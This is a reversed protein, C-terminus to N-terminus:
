PRPTSRRTRSGFSQDERRLRSRTRRSLTGARPSRSSRPFSDTRARTARLVQRPRVARLGDPLPRQHDQRTRSRVEQDRQHDEGRGRQEEAVGIGRRTVPSRSSIFPCSRGRRGLGPQPGAVPDHAAAVDRDSARPAARTCSRAVDSLGDRERDLAASSSSNLKSIVGSGSVISPCLSRGSRSRARRALGLGDSGDIPGPPPRATPLDRDAFGNM